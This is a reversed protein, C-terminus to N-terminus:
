SSVSHPGACPLARLPAHREAQLRGQLSYLSRRLNGVVRLISAAESKGQHASAHTLAGLGGM